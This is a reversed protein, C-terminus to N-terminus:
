HCPILTQSSFASCPIPEARAVLLLNSTECLLLSNGAVVEKKNHQQKLEKLAWIQKTCHSQRDNRQLSCYSATAQRTFSGTARDRLWHWHKGYSDPSSNWHEERGGEHCITCLEAAAVASLLEHLHSGVTFIKWCQQESFSWHCSTVTLFEVIYM